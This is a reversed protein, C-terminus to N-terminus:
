LAREPHLVGARSRLGPPADYLNPTSKAQCGAGTTLQGTQRSETACFAPPEAGCCAKIRAATEECLFDVEKFSGCSGSQVLLPAMVASLFLCPIGRHSARRQM